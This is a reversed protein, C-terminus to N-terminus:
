LLKVFNDHQTTTQDQLRTTRHNGSEPKGSKDHNRYDTKGECTAIMIQKKWKRFIFFQRYPFCGESQTQRSNIFFFTIILHMQISVIM